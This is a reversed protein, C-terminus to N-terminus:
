VSILLVERRGGQLFFKDLHRYFRKDNASLPLYAQGEPSIKMTDICDTFHLSPRFDGLSQYGVSIVYYRVLALFVVSSLM